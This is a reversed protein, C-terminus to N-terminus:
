RGRTPVIPPSDELIRVAASVVTHRVGGDADVVLFGRADVGAVRGVFRRESDQVAVRRGTLVDRTRWAALVMEPGSTAYLGAWKEFQNMFGAALANRDIPRGHAERLSTAAAAAPGLAAELEAHGINVNIGVGVVVYSVRDGAIGVDLRAGAVKRGGIVIDNPWKVAAPIDLAWIAETLALSTIFSFISVASPEIRPRLLVSAHLNMGPPSFWVTDFRGRGERQAESLVVTGEAAGADALDRLVANTSTVDAFVYLHTGIATTVLGRRIATVDLGDLAVAGRKVEPV